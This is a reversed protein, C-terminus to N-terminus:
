QVAEIKTLWLQKLDTEGEVAKETYEFKVKVDSPLEDVISRLEEPIRYAGAGSDTTIELSNSDILGTYTGEARIPSAEGNGNGNNDTSNDDNDSPAGPEQVGNNDPLQDVPSGTENNNPNASNNPNNANAGCASMTLMVALLLAGATAAKKRKKNTLNM